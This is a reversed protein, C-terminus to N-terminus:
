PSGGTTTSAPTATSPAPATPTAGGTVGAASPPTVFATITFKSELMPFGGESDAALSFGDVTILRGRVRLKASQTKVLRDLGRIFDALRFFSGKFTLEYHMVGLGAPGITAGLPLLSAAAETPTTPTASAEAAPAEEGGGESGLKFTQFRVKTNRAIRHLQVLLSATEDDGPVAKGLVVLQHYDVPFERRAQEATAVEASHQALSERAQSVQTSLKSAEERRPSLLLMWFAVALAAVAVMAVVLKGNASGM